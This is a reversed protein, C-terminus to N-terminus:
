AVALARALADLKSQQRADTLGFRSRVQCDGPQLTPDPTVRLGPYRERWGPNLAQLLDADRPCLLLELNEREPFLQDLAERCLKAIIGAPPEYGALLHRALDLALAPLQDRLEELLGAEVAALKQLVGNSLQAVESRIDVMQQDALARAADVGRRYSAEGHASYETETYLRGPQGATATGTLPRDFPLLKTHAM